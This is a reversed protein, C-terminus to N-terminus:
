TVVIPGLATQPALDGGGIPTACVVTYTGASALAEITDTHGGAVPARIIVTLADPPQGPTKGHAVRRATRDVKAV